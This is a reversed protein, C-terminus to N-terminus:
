QDTSAMDMRSEMWDQKSYGRANTPQSMELGMCNRTPKAVMLNTTMSNSARASQFKLSSANKYPM